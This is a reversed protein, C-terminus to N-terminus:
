PRVPYEGNLCICLNLVLYPQVNSHAGGGGVPALANAAMTANPAAAVYTNAATVRPSVGKVGKALYANTPAKASASANEVAVAHTHNPMKQSTLTESETGVTQAVTRPTLNPGFGSGMVTKGQLNPLNFAQNNGGYLNGIVAYLASNQVVPVSQGWCCAWDIPPFTFAFPRIEGVYPDAM